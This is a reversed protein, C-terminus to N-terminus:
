TGAAEVPPASPHQGCPSSWLSQSTKVIKYPQGDYIELLEPLGMDRAAGYVGDGDYENQYLKFALHLQKLNSLSNIQKSKHKAHVFAPLVLATLTSIIVIVLLTEVLTFGRKM